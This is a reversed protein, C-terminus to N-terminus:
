NNLLIEIVFKSGLYGLLLFMFAILTWRVAVTGRWGFFHHGILLTSYILWSAITLITHHVVRQAFMDDLFLFGTLIALTLMTVGAQLLSFLLSEMTQLPPLLRVLTYTHKSRLRNDLLALLLSQCAAMFLISYAVISLLIHWILSASLDTIPQFSSDFLLEAIVTLAAFPAILVLLNAVPVRLSAFLVFCVMIWSVLSASLFVNLNLGEPTGILKYNLFGHAILAPFLLGWLLKTSPQSDHQLGRVQVAASVIYGTAAVLGAVATVTSVM